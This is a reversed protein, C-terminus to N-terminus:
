ASAAVLGQAVLTALCEAVQASPPAPLAFGDGIFREIEAVSKGMGCLEFIITATPNLYHVQDSAAQYVM